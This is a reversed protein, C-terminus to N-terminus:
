KVDDHGWNPSDAMTVYTLADTHVIEVGDGVWLILFQHLTSPVCHNAPTWNWGMIVSYNCQVKVVFFTSALTTSAMTLVMSAVGKAGILEGRGVGNTTMNTKILEGNFKGL